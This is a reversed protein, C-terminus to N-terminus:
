CAIRRMFMKVDIIISGGGQEGAAKASTNLFDEVSLAQGGTTVTGGGEVNLETIKWTGPASIGVTATPAGIQIKATPMGIPATSITNTNSLGVIGPTGTTPKPPWMLCAEGICCAFSSLDLHISMPDAVSNQDGNNLTVTAGSGFVVSAIAITNGNWEFTFPASSLM